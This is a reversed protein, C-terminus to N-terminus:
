DKRDIWRFRVGACYASNITRTPPKPWGKVWTRKQKRGPGVPIRCEPDEYYEAAACDDPNPHGEHDNM